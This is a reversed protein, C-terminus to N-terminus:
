KAFTLDLYNMSDLPTLQVSFDGVDLSSCNREIITKVGKKTAASSSFLNRKLGRVLVISMKVTRLDGDTGRAVVLLISQATSRLVNDGAATIEM